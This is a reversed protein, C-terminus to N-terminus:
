KGMLCEPWFQMLDSQQNEMRVLACFGENPTRELRRRQLLVDLEFGQGINPSIPLFGLRYIYFVGIKRDGLIAGTRETPKAVFRSRSDEPHVKDADILAFYRFPIALDKKHALNIGSSAAYHAEQAFGGEPDISPQRPQVPIYV